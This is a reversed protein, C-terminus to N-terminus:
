EKEEALFLRKYEMELEEWKLKLMATNADYWAQDSINFVSKANSIESILSKAYSNSLKIDTSDFLLIFGDNSFHSEDAILRDFMETQYAYWVWLKYSQNYGMDFQNYFNMYRDNM